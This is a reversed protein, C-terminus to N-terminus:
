NRKVNEDNKTMISGVISAIEDDRIKFAKKVDQVTIYERSLVKSIDVEINEM